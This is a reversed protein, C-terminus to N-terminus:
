TQSPLVTELGSQGNELDDWNILYVAEGTDAGIPVRKRVFNLRARDQRELEDFFRTLRSVVSAEQEVSNPEWVLETMGVEDRDNFPNSSTGPLASLVLIGGLNQNTTRCGGRPTISLPFDVSFGM